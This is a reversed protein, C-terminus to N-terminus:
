SVIAYRHTYSRARTHRAAPRRLSLRNGLYLVGQHSLLLNRGRSQQRATLNFFVTIDLLKSQGNSVYQGPPMQLDGQCDTFDTSTYAESPM